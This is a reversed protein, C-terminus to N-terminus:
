IEEDRSGNKKTPINREKWEFFLNREQDVIDDLRLFQPHDNMITLIEEEPISGDTNFTSSARRRMKRDKEDWVEAIIYCTKNVQSLIENAGRIARAEWGEVDLHLIGLPLIENQISDLSIMKVQEVDDSDIEDDSQSESDSDNETSNNGCTGDFYFVGGEQMDNKIGDQFLSCDVVTSAVNHNASYAVRGDYREVGKEPIQRVKRCVDGVCCNVIRVSNELGNAVVTARIFKCKRRSPEFAIFRIDDRGNARAHVAMTLTTDGFHSGCDLFSSGLPLSLLCKAEIRKHKRCRWLQTPDKNSCGKLPLKLKDQQQLLLLINSHM